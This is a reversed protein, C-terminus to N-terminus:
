ESRETGTSRYQQYKERARIVDINRNGNEIKMVADLKKYRAYVVGDRTEQSIRGKAGVEMQDSVAHAFPIVIQNDAINLEMKGEIDEITLMDLLWTPKRSQNNFMAVVPRSDLINVRAEASLRLPKKWQTTAEDLTIKASWAENDFVTNEGVIRVDTLDAHSGSFDFIMDSPTGGVLRIDFALDSKVRQGDIVMELESSDLKLWGDADDPTLVVDARLNASGDVLQLPSDAPLYGSFISMDTVQASNIKVALSRKTESKDLSVNEAKATVGLDVGLIYASTEDRRKLDGDQLLISLLWDPSVAGQEVQMSIRGKGSSRYDLFDVVLNDSLVQIDTGPAPMGGGLRIVGNLVGAGSVSTKLSSDLLVGIWDLSSVQSEFQMFGHLNNLLQKSDSNGLLQLLNRISEQGQKQGEEFLGFSGDTVTFSAKWTESGAGENDKLRSDTLTIYSGAIVTDSDHIAPNSLKLAADLNSYFLYNELGLSAAESKISLDIDLASPSLRAHGQVIGEGGHLDLPWKEPLYHQFLSLDPATLAAISFSMARRPDRKEPDEVVSLPGVLALSLSDGVLLPSDDGTHIVKPRAFDASLDLWGPAGQAPILRLGGEGSITHDLVEMSLDDAEVFLDTAPLIRGQDIDLRGTVKGAGNVSMQNFSRTFLNIFLLSNADINIDADLALFKLVKIGKNERPKFPVLRAKGAVTGGSFIEHSANALLAGLQLDMTGNSLSFPGGRTEFTLDAALAGSGSGKFQMVWYDHDGELRITDIALRWPRKRKRPTTIAPTMERGEIVPFFEAVDSYDRDPKLRPRQKYSIDKVTIDSLWVRKLVLPLLSISASASPAEVQWQQSRSQGNASIGTAHVRFPYFTWASEWSVHFKEPRIANVLSQTLPVQLALNFLILYGLQALLVIRLARIFWSRTSGTTDAM